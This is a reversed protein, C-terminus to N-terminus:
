SSSRQSVNGVFEVSSITVPKASLSYVTYGYSHAEGNLMARMTGESVIIDGAPLTLSRTRLAINSLRTAIIDYEGSNRHDLVVSEINLRDGLVARGDQDRRFPRSLDVYFPYTRGVICPGASFNGACLVLTGYVVPTLVRGSNHGFSDGLVVANISSDATPLTWTTKGTASSYVGTLEIMSDLRPAYLYNM